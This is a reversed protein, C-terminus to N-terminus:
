KRKRYLWGAAGGALMIALAAPGTDPTSPVTGLDGKTTHDSSGATSGDATTGQMDDSFPLEVVQAPLTGPSTRELICSSSCGDNDFTNGDDCTELPTDLISDGCRGLTCDTRCYANPTDANASGTDCQEGTDIRANGCFPPLQAIDTVTLCRNLICRANPGCDTDSTCSIDKTTHSSNFGYFSRSSNTGGIDGTTGSVTDGIGGTQGSVTGSIDGGIGTTGTTTGATTGGDV